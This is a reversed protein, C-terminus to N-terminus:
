LGFTVLCIKCTLRILPLSLRWIPPLSAKLLVLYEGAYGYSINRFSVSIHPLMLHIYSINRPMLTHSLTMFNRSLRGWICQCAAWGYQIWAGRGILWMHNGNRVCVDLFVGFFTLWKAFLLFTLSYSFCCLHSPVPHTYSEQRNTSSM